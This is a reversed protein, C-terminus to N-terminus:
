AFIRRLFNVFSKTTFSLLYYVLVKNFIGYIKFYEVSAQRVEKFDNLEFHSKVTSLMSLKNGPQDVDINLISNKDFKEYDDFGRVIRQNYFERAKQSFLIEQAKRSRGIGTSSMRYKLLTEKLNSLKKNQSLLLLYFDYDESYRFKDRYFHKGENRFMITPHYLCNNKILANKLKESTTFVKPTRIYQGSEDVRNVGTGLLFIEKHKELYNYQKEFREPLSIDDADMIAIYKGKALKLAKNRSATQGLNKGNKILKIRSDKKSYKELIKLTRDTSADNIIIFEFDRFKQNLISEVSEKIYNEANYAAMVATIKPKIKM